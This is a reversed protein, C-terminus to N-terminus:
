WHTATETALEAHLTSYVKHTIMGHEILEELIREEVKLVGFRALRESLAAVAASNAHAISRMKEGADISFRDYIAETEQVVHASFMGDAQETKIRAIEKKVKHAIIVLARYYMYCEEPKEYMSKRGFLRRMSEAFREFVDMYHPIHLQSSNDGHQADETRVALKSLIRKYGHESLEGFMFLEKAARREAGLLWIRLVPAAVRATDTCADQTTDIRRQDYYTRLADHTEKAIYGKHAFRELREVVRAYVLARSEHYQAKEIGTLDTIGLKQMLAGITTAKIFLTIFICGTTFALITGQISITHQWGAVVLDSPVLLAMTVALAGRLSGWALLHQWTTPIRRRANRVLTNWSAIVPYVSLARAIAVVVIVIGIPVFLQPSSVPLSVALMGILIFVISNALFAVQEWFKEVFEEARLPMRTRGYNGLVMAAFTTAIISSLHIQFAGIHVHSSIFESLLFTTHALVLTLTISVSESSRAYGIAQSFLGGMFLGFLTGGVIMITFSLLGELISETGFGGKLAFELAILFLAFGTGDNFLSEGEFLLRLRRPAGYEKFLALVAVPDTASILSGFILAVVFPIPFGVLPLLFFLAAAIALASMLLSVVSLLFVPIAEQTLSRISISYASEFILTPLFIYFLLEPTLTFHQLFDLPTTHSLVVLGVGIAVLLVTHPIGTRKAAFYAFGSVAFLIFVTLVPILALEM